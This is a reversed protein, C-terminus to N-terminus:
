KENSNEKSIRNKKSLVANSLFGFILFTRFFPIRFFFIFKSLVNNSWVVEDRVRSIFVFTIFGFYSSPYLFFSFHRISFCLSSSNPHKLLDCLLVFFILKFAWGPKISRLLKKFFKIPSFSFFFDDLNVVRFFDDEAHQYILLTILLFALKM